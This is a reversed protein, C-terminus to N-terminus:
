KSEFAFLKDGFLMAFRLVDEPGNEMGDIKQLEELKWSRIITLSKVSPDSLKVIRRRKTKVRECVALCRLKDKGAKKARSLLVMNNSNGSDTTPPVELKYVSVAAICKEDNALATQAAVILAPLKPVSPM